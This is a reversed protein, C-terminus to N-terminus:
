TEQLMLRYLSGDEVAGLRRYLVDVKPGSGRPGARFFVEGIGKANLERLAHRQLKLGLGPFEKSAFFATHVASLRTESELSPSLVTMLYGFMRGNSRATIIQLNGKQGLERLLPINKKEHDFPGDGVEVLHDSILKQGDRYWDDFSEEAFVIGHPPENQKLALGKLMEYKALDNLKQLQDQYAGAYRLLAIMSCQINIPNLLKWWETDHKYPLCFEFIQACVAEERLDDFKVSLVNPLRREIQDLKANLHIMKRMLRERDFQGAGRLDLAMLSTICEEVSRRVIVIRADPAFKPILRWYSSLMTEATGTGPQSLWSRVDQMSRMHRIEEHGCICDAYTLFRALWATRSRPLGLVVFPHM